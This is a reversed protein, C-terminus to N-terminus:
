AASAKKMITNMSENAHQALPDIAGKTARLSIESLKSGGAVLNDFCDKMFETHTDAAEQPSKASLITKCASVSRNYTEQLLASMNKTMDEIGQLTAANSKNAAGIYSSMLANVDECAKIMHQSFDHADNAAATM